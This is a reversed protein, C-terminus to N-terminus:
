DTGYRLKNFKMKQLSLVCIHSKKANGFKLFTCLNAAKLSRGFALRKLKPPPAGRVGKVLPEARSGAPPEAGLGGNHARACREGYPRAGLFFELSSGGSRRDSTTPGFKQCGVGVVKVQNTVVYSFRGNALANGSITLVPVTVLVRGSASCPPEAQLRTVM